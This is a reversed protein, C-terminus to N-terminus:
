SHGYQSELLRKRDQLVRKREEEEGRIEKAIQTPNTVETIKSSPDWAFRKRLKIVQEAEPSYKEFKSSQMDRMSRSKHDYHASGEEAALDLLYKATDERVRMNNAMEFTEGEKL